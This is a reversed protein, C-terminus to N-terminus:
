LVENRSEFINKTTKSPQQQKNNSFFIRMSSKNITGKKLDGGEFFPKREEDVKVRAQV